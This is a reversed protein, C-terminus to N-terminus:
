FLDIFLNAQIHKTILATNLLHCAASHISYEKIEQVTTFIATAKEWFTNKIDTLIVTLRIIKKLVVPTIIKKCFIILQNFHLMKPKPM